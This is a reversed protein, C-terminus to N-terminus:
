VTDFGPQMSLLMTVRGVAAMASGFDAFMSSVKVGAKTPNDELECPDKLKGVSVVWTNTTESSYLWVDIYRTHGVVAGFRESCNCPGLADFNFKTGGLTGRLLKKSFKM